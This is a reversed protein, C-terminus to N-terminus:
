FFEGLNLYWNFSDKGFAFDLTVNANSRKNFKIRLGFGTAAKVYDFKQSDMESYSQANVFVVAGWFGNASLDFRYETEAYLMQKGRYRGFKYGRGSRSYLDQATGPLNMYPVDGFTGWYMTWFALLSRRRDSLPVYKRFDLTISSWSYTSGFKPAFIKYNLLSYFGGIPNISNKRSDRLLNFSLGSSTTTEDTGFAYTSYDTAEEQKQTEKMDYFYDINYGVGVYLYRLLLRNASGYFRFQEVELVSEINSSSNTGLGWTNLDNNSKRIEGLFNWLNKNAWITPRLIVGRQTSLNTYPILYINSLNTTAPDGLYFAANISSVAVKGSPSSAGAIPIFSFNVKKDARAKQRNELKFTKLLLDILDKQAVAKVTDAESVQCHGKGIDIWFTIFLLWILPLNVIKKKRKFCCNM